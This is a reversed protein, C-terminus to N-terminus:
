KDRPCVMASSFVALWGNRVGLPPIYVNITFCNYQSYRPNILFLKSNQGKQLGNHQFRCSILLKECKNTSWSYRPNILFHVGNTFCYQSYRPNILVYRKDRPCVMASSFVALWGNRVGLPPIYVNITFCYQSYRPNILSYGQIKM